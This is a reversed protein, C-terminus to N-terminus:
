YYLLLTNRWILIYIIHEKNHIRCKKIFIGCHTTQVMIQLKFEHLYLISKMENWLIMSVHHTLFSFVLEELKMWKAYHNTPRTFVSFPARFTLCFFARSKYYEFLNHYNHTLGNMIQKSRVIYPMRNSSNKIRALTYSCFQIQIIRVKRDLMFIKNVFVHKDYYFVHDASYLIYIYKRSPDSKCFDYM